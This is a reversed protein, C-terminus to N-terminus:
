RKTYKLLGDKIKIALRGFTMIIPKFVYQYRGFCVLQGGFKLKYDRVGYPINPKGAGGFDFVEYGNEGGWKLINWILIDNPRYELFDDDAGAYWDYIMKNYCFVLRVGILKSDRYAGFIKIYGLPDLNRIISSFFMKSPLPLKVRNYVIKLLNYILDIQYDSQEDIIRIELERQGKNISKKRDKTMSNWLEDETKRLDILIDLHEEYSFGNDIFINKYISTDWINRFELYVVKNKLYKKIENLFYGLIAIDNEDSLVPGGIIIARSTLRKGLRGGNSFIIGLALGVIKENEYVFFTIPESSKNNIQSKYYELSQFINAQTNNQLFNSWEEEEIGIEFRYNMNNDLM